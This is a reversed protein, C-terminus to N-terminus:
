PLNMAVPTPAREDGTLYLADYAGLDGPRAPAERRYAAPVPLAAQLSPMLPALHAMRASWEVDKVLIVAGYAAKAGLLGDEYTELAPIVIDLRNDRMDLWARDSEAYEDTELAAARAVLYRRLDDQPALDAARRLFTAAEHLPEAFAVAYPVAHLSGDDRRRVLTREGGIAPDIRAAAEVEEATADSPYFAVGPPRVGIDELLPRYSDLRDWPGVNREVRARLAPDEIAELMQSKTRGTVQRWFLDEMREAAGALLPLMAVEEPSLTSVDAELRVLAFGDVVEDPVADPRLSAQM